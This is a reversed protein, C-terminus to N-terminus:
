SGKTNDQLDSMFLIPKFIMSHFKIELIDQIEAEKPKM